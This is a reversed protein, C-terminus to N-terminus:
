QDEILHREKMANQIKHNTLSIERLLKQNSSKLKSEEENIFSINQQLIEFTTSSSEQDKLVKQISEDLYAIENEFRNKIAKMTEIKMKADEIERIIGNAELKYEESKQKAEKHAKGAAMLAEDRRNLAAISSKWQQILQKKELMLLELEYSTEQLAETAQKTQEHQGILQKETLALDVEMGKIQENLRNIYVDQAIKGKELAKVNEEAKSAVRRTVTIESQVEENYTKIQRITDNLASLEVLSSSVKKKLNDAELRKDQLTQKFEEVLEVENERKLFVSEHEKELAVLNDQLRALQQQVGYLHVGCDERAKKAERLADEKEILEDKLRDRTTKLQQKLALKVRDMGPNDSFSEQVKNSTSIKIQNPASNDEPSTVSPTSPKVEPNDSTTDNEM